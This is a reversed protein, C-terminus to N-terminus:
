NMGIDIVIMLKENGSIDLWTWNISIDIVLMSIM